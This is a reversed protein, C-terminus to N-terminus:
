QKEELITFLSQDISVNIPDSYKKNDADIKPTHIIHYIDLAIWAIVTLFFTLSIFFIEKGKM